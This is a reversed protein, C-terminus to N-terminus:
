AIRRLRGRPESDAREDASPEVLQRLALLLEHEDGGGHRAPRAHEHGVLRALAEVRV